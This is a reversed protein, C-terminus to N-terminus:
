VDKLLEGNVEINVAGNKGSGKSKRENRCVNIMIGIFFLLIIIILITAFVHNKMYDLLGGGEEEEKKTGEIILNSYFGLYEERENDEIVAICTFYFEGVYDFNSEKYTKSKYEDSELIKYMTYDPKIESFFLYLPKHKENINIDNVKSKEYANFIYTTKGKYKSPIETIKITIDNKTGSVNFNVESVGGYITQETSFQNQYSFILLDEKEETEKSYINYLIYRYNTPNLSIISKGYLDYETRVLGDEVTKIKENKIENRSAIGYEYKKSLPKIINISVEQSYDIDSKVLLLQYDTTKSPIKQIFLQNRALPSNNTMNYPYLDIKVKESKEGNPSFVIYVYQDKNQTYTFESSPITLRAFTLNGKSPGGTIFTRIEGKSNENKIDTIKNIFSGDGIYSKIDYTSTNSYIKLNMSVDNYIKNSNEAKMYFYLDDLKISNMIKFSNIKNNEIQNVFEFDTNIIYEITFVFDQKDAAGDKENLANLELNSILGENIIITMDEKYTSNLGIIYKEDNHKFIGNGRIAHINIKYKNNPSNGKMRLLISEINVSQGIVFTRKEGYNLTVHNPKSYFSTSFTSEIENKKEVKILLVYGKEDLKYQYWNSRKIGNGSSIEYKSSSILYTSIESNDKLKQIYIIADEAEPVYFYAYEEEIDKSIDVTYYCIKSKCKESFSSLIPIVPSSYKEGLSSVKLKFTPKDNGSYEVTIAINKSVDENLFRKTSNLSKASTGSLTATVESNDNENQKVLFLEISISTPKYISVYYNVKSPGSDTFSYQSYYNLPLNIESVTNSNKYLYSISLHTYVEKKNSNEPIRVAIYLRCYLGCNNPKEQSIKLYNTTQTFKSPLNGEEIKINNSYFIHEIELDQEYSNILVETDYDKNLDIYYYQISKSNSSTVIAKNVQRIYKRGNKNLYLSFIQSNGPTSFTMTLKCIENQSLSGCYNNILNNSLIINKTSIISQSRSFSLEKPETRNFSIRELSYSLTLSNASFKEIDVNLSNDDNEIDSPKFIHTFKIEKEYFTSNVLTNESLLINKNSSTYAFITVEEEFGENCIIGDNKLYIKVEVNGQTTVSFNITNGDGKNTGVEAHSICTPTTISIYMNKDNNVFTFTKTYEAVNNQNPVTLLETIVRNNDLVKSQSLATIYMLNYFTNKDGEVVAYIEKKYYNEKIFTDKTITYSQKRGIIESNYNLKAGERGNYLTLKANGSIISLDIKITEFNELYEFVPLLFTDKKNNDIFKTYNNDPFLFLPDDDYTMIIDYSCEESCYVYILQLESKNTPQTYWLGINDIFPVIKTKDKEEEEFYCEEPYNTCTKFSIHMNSSSKSKLYYNLNTSEREIPLFHYMSKKSPILMSKPDGTVLPLLLKQTAELNTYDLYQFNLSSRKPSNNFNFLINGNAIVNYHFMSNYETIKHHVKENGNSDEILFFLNKTYTQYVFYQDKTNSEGSNKLTSILNANGELNIQFGNFLPTPFIKEKNLHMYGLIIVENKNNNNTIQVNIVKANEDLEKRDLFISYGNPYIYAGKEDTVTKGNYTTVIELNRLSTKSFVMLYENYIQSNTWKHEININEGKPLIFQNSIFNSYYNYTPFTIKDAYKYHLVFNCEGYSNIFINAKDYEIDGIKIFLGSNLDLTSYDSKIYNINIEKESYEKFYIKSAAKNIYFADEINRSYIHLYREINNRSFLAPIKFLNGNSIEVKQEKDSFTITDKTIMEGQILSIYSFLVLFTFLIQIFKM